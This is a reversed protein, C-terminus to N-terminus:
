QNIVMFSSSQKCYNVKPQIIGRFLDSVILNQVILGRHGTDVTYWRITSGMVSTKFIPNDLAYQISKNEFISKILYFQTPM